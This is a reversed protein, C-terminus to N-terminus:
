TGPHLEFGIERGVFFASRLWIESVQKKQFSHSSSKRLLADEIASFPINLDSRM